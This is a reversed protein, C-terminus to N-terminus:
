FIRHNVFSARGPDIVVDEILLNGVRRGSDDCLEVRLDYRGAPLVLRAMLIKEPLTTWERTDATETAANFWNVMWGLAEDKESAGEKAAYKTLARLITRFVIKGYAEEFAALAYSDVNEVVDTRVRARGASLAAPVDDRADEGAPRKWAPRIVAYDWPVPTPVMVPVAVKLVYDLKRNGDYAASEV